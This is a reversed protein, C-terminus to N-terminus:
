KNARASIAESASEVRNKAAPMTLIVALAVIGFIFFGLWLPKYTHYTDFVWGTLPQSAIGAITLFVGELAFITGFNKTGFYEVLIPPQLVMIGSLGIGYTIAFALILWFPSSGTLLWFFLAGITQFGVSLAVCYSKRIRDVLLGFPIRTFLSVLTLLSTVTAAGTRTMGVDTLYPISFTGLVGMLSSQFFVTMVLHWFARMRLADKVSTGFEASAKIAKGGNSTVVAAGDPLLNYDQPRNRFILAVPLGIVLLGIAGYFLTTQWGISDIIRVVLPAAVGGLGNGMFFIGNAKGLDKKFWRAIVTAPLIGMAMSSGLGMVLFGGYFMGLNKTQSLLFIGAANVILGIIMLKRASFRDVIWGFIPNFIGSELGRLSSALSLQVMTWGFTVLIPNIFGSWGYFFLAANYFNLVVGAAVIYWGYFFKPKM